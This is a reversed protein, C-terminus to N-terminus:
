FNTNSTFMNRNNCTHSWIRSQKMYMEATSEQRLNYYCYHPFYNIGVVSLLITSVYM